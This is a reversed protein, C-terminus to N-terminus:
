DEGFVHMGGETVLPQFTVLHGDLEGLFLIFVSILYVLASVIQDITM